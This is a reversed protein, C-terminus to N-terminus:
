QGSAYRFGEQNAVKSTFHVDDQIIATAGHVLALREVVEAHWALGKLAAGLSQHTVTSLSLCTM